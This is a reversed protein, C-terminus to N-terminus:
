LSLNFIALFCHRRQLTNDELSSQTEIGLFNCKTGELFILGENAAATCLIWVHWGSYQKQITSLFVSIISYRLAAVNLTSENRLTFCSGNNWRRGHLHSHELQPRHSRWFLCQQGDKIWTDSCVFLRTFWVNRLPNLPHAALWVRAWFCAWLGLTFIFRTQPPKVVFAGGHTSPMFSKFTFCRCSPNSKCWLRQLTVRRFFCSIVFWSAPNLRPSGTSFHSRWVSEPEKSPAVSRPVRHSVAVKFESNDTPESEMYVNGRATARQQQTKKKKLKTRDERKQISKNLPFVCRM